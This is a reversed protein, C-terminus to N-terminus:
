PEHRMAEVPSASAARLAPWLSVAIGLVWILVSFGLFQQLSLRPYLTQGAGFFEAGQALFGLDVGGHLALIVLAAALMGALAAIGILLAAEITIQVVVQRPRMGLALMLGLERVREFVAMLQNNLIGIAMLVFMIWLWVYVFGQMFSDMAAALPALTTWPQVDLDPAAQRLSAIVPDLQDGQSVLFSIESFATGAKLMRQAAQIGTFGFENEEDSGGRLIGVVSFSQEALTGDRTQAMLIVRRGLVTRLRRAVDRGLVVSGDDGGQLYRGEAVRGPIVSLAQERVPDVGVFTIPLTRYESRVIAPLRIRAAWARVPARDLVSTLAPGPPAMSHGISPDNLYEEAHIQGSGTLLQLASDRSSQAWAELLASLCLISFLGAAVVLITIATRRQNRWLNRWALGAILRAASSM